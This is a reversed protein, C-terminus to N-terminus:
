EGGVTSKIEVNMAVAIELDVPMMGNFVDPDSEARCDFLRETILVADIAVASKVERHILREREDREVDAPTREENAIETLQSRGDAGEISLEDFFKKAGDGEVRPDSEVYFHKVADVRMMLDLRYELRESMCESNGDFVIRTHM